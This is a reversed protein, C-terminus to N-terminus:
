YLMFHILSGQIVSTFNHFVHQGHLLLVKASNGTLELVTSLFCGLFLLVVGSRCKQLIKYHRLLAMSTLCGDEGNNLAFM